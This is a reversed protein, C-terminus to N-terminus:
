RNGGPDVIRDRRRARERADARAATAPQRAQRATTGVAEDQGLRRHARRHHGSIPRHRPGANAAGTAATACTKAPLASSKPREPIRPPTAPRAATPKEPRRAATASQARRAQERGHRGAAAPTGAKGARPRRNPPRARSPSRTGDVGRDLRRAAGRTGRRAHHRCRRDSLAGARPIGRGPAGATDSTSFVHGKLALGKVM